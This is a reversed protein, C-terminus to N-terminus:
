IPTIGQCASVTTMTATPPAAPVTWRITGDSTACYDKNGSSPSIPTTFLVFDTSPAAGGIATISYQYQDKVCPQAACALVQDALCATAATPVCPTAGGNGLNALSAPFGVQPYSTNYAITDHVLTRMTGVAASEDATMKSRLFNPVAIAAMILLIAVVILLELLSFGKQHRKM